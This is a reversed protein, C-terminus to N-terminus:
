ISFTSLGQTSPKAKFIGKFGNKTSLDLIKEQKALKDGCFVLAFEGQGGAASGPRM